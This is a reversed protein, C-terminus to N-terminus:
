HTVSSPHLGVDTQGMLGHDQGRCLSDEWLGGLPKWTPLIPMPVLCKLQLVM